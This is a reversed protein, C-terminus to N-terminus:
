NPKSATAAECSAYLKCKQQLCLKEISSQQMVTVNNKFIGNRCCKDLQLEKFLFDFIKHEKESELLLLTKIKEISNLEQLNSIEISRLIENRKNASSLTDKTRLKDETNVERSITQNNEHMSYFSPESMM